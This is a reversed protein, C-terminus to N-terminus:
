ATIKIPPGPKDVGDVKRVGVTGMRKEPIVRKLIKKEPNKPDDVEKAAFVEYGTVENSEGLIERLFYPVKNIKQFLEQPKVSGTCISESGEFKSGERVDEALVPNYIFDGVKGKLPLCKFTKDKNQKYNLECDVAAVKLICELGEIIKRKKESITYIMEDTTLVYTTMSPKIPLGLEAARKADVSDHLLLTEDIKNPGTRDGQAAESFCSIYTYISVDRQDEALDLHSGIRIARGKVQRLRVENWYPEMIHVARVNRLSLGEAGASTICFVRCLEGNKNDTYGAETLIKNMSEPLTSFKANFLNLAARRVEQKEGGSFTLYRPQKRRLSAETEKTFAVTNGSLTIEIPAYGNVDMAVRFIGIGEMDLFQSYVLSSGPAAAIKELMASYKASYNSLGDTDGITMKSKAVTRLCDRARACADKYKEGPKTGQKCDSLTAAKVTKAKLTLSKLAPKATPPKATPPKAPETPKATPANATPAKAANANPPKAPEAANAKAAEAAKAAKAARLEAVTKGGGQLVPMESEEELETRLEMLLKGLYNNSRESPDRDEESQVLRRNGTSLLLSILEDDKFKERVARKLFVTIGNRKFNPNLKHTKDQGMERAKEPTPAERIQAIWGSETSDYKLTQLFHEVTPYTLVVSATELTIPTRAFNSFVKYENEIDKGFRIDGQRSKQTVGKPKVPEDGEQWPRGGKDEYEKVFAARAEDNKSGLGLYEEPVEEGRSAYYERILANTENGMTVPVKEYLEAQIAEDEKAAAAADEEDEELEVNLAEEGEEEETLTIIGAVAEGDEAEEKSDQATAAPRTVDPPFAFNCAQRSGMKYNNAGASDGLEYVQTFVADVTVKGKSELESKVESSRKFSYAKQAYLSFPVRVVEDSKVRPMLELRSGKYYSILGTLRTILVAKNKVSDGAIFNEKFSDAFPPLLEEAKPKLAGSFALGAASFDDQISKVMEEFTPQAEEEPIREVGV